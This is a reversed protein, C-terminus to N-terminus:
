AFTVKRIRARMGGGIMGFGMIMMAWTAPEPVAGLNGAIDVAGPGNFTLTFAGSDANEFGTAVAFYQTGATLSLDTIFADTGVPGDDNGAIGNALASLPNFANAYIFLLNDYTSANGISYIGSSAVTFAVSSYAVNTGIASLGVFNGVPRGFTPGGTTTGSYITTVALAPTAAIMAIGIIATKLIQMFKGKQILRVHYGSQM